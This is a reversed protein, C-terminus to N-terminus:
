EAAPKPAKIKLNVWSEGSDDSKLKHIIQGEFPEAGAINQLVDGLTGTHTVNLDQAFARLKGVDDSGKIWFSRDYTKGIFSEETKGHPVKVLSKVDEAKLVVKIVPTKDDGLEEVTVDDVGFLYLGAPINEFRVVEVDDVNINMIDAASLGAFQDTVDNAQDTM